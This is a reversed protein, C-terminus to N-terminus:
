DWTINFTYTSGGGTVDRIVTLWTDAVTAGATTTDDLFVNDDILQNGVSFQQIGTPQFKDEYTVHNDNFCLNGFWQKAGGHIQLTKSANYVNATLDGNQVGRNGLVVFRSNYTDRWEKAKRPGSLQLTGYSTNCIANLDTRFNPDWYQDVAAAVNYADFNYNALTLVNTSVEAPSVLVGTDFAGQMICHSYLNAHSNMTQDEAGKGPITGVRDVLGPTPMIGRTDAAGSTALTLFGKHVQQIQTSDKVQKATARARGLAPLLIALLLAIIGMVVLLEILTFGRKSAKNTQTNM